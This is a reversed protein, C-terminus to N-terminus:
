RTMKEQTTYHLVGEVKKTMIKREKKQKHPTTFLKVALIYERPKLSNGKELKLIANKKWNLPGLVFIGNKVLKRSIKLRSAQRQIKM